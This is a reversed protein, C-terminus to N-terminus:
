PGPITATLPTTLQEGSHTCIATETGCAGSTTLTLEITATGDPVISINWRQNSPRDIRNARTVTAGTAGIITDRLHKYSLRIPKNFTLEFTFAAGSHSAPPTWSARLPDANDAPDSEGGSDPGAITATPPPALKRGDSTCVAADDDCSQTPRVAVTIDGDGSPVASIRWRQNSGAEIRRARTITAGTATLVEDRVTSFGLGVAESIRFEFTFESGDHTTPMDHFTGVLAPPEM